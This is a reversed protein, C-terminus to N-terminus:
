GTDKKMTPCKTEALRQATPDHELLRSQPQVLWVRPDTKAALAFTFLSILPILMSRLIM